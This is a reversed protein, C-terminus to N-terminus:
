RGASIRAYKSIEDWFIRAAEPLEMDEPIEVEGTKFSVKIRGIVLHSVEIQAPVINVAGIM